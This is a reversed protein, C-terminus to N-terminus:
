QHEQHLKPALLAKFLWSGDTIQRIHGVKALAAICQQIIVTEQEGYLIKKVAIPRSSGTEIVCENNKVQIFVGKKDFMSWHDRIIKYLKEQLTPELHSLDMDKRMLAEHKDAIFPSYYLPDVPADLDPQPHRLKWLIPGSDVGHLVNNYDKSQDPFGRDDLFM